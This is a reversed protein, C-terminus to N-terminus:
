LNALKQVPVGLAHALKCATELRPKAKGMLLAWLGEYTIEAREALERRSLGRKTALAEVRLGWPCPQNKRPRGGAHRQQVTAM